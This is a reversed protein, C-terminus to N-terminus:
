INVPFKRRAPGIVDVADSKSTPRVHRSGFAAVREIALILLLPTAARSRSWLSQEAVPGDPERDLRGLEDFVSDSSGHSEAAASELQVGNAVSTAALFQIASGPQMAARLQATQDISEMLLSAENSVTGTQTAASKESNPQTEGSDDGLERTDSLSQRKRLADDDAKVPSDEISLSRRSDESKSDVVEFVSARALEGSVSSNTSRAMGAFPDGEGKAGAVRTISSKHAILSEQQLSALLSPIAISGGESVSAASEAPDIIQGNSNSGFTSPEGLPIIAPQLDSDFFKSIRDFDFNASSVLFARDSAFLSFVHDFEGAIGAARLQGTSQESLLSAHSTIFGGEISPAKSLEGIFSGFRVDEFGFPIVRFEATPMEVSTASLMLRGEMREVRLCRDRRATKIQRKVAKSHQHKTGSQRFM